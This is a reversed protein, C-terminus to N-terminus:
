FEKDFGSFLLIDDLFRDFGMFSHDGGTEYTLRAPSSFRELAARYDLVKDQEQVMLWILSQNVNCDDLKELEYMHAETLEYCEGTYPNTQTGLYRRLLVPAEIAPNVLVAKIDYKASLYVSYFGGLSSGILVVEYGEELREEIMTELLAIAKSPQWPLRPCAFCESMGLTAMRQLIQQSKYSLESSNFGHVYILFPM